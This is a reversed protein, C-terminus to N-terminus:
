HIIKMKQLIQMTIETVLNEKLLLLALLYVGFFICASVLLLVFTNWHVLGTWSISLLGAGIACLIKFYHIEKFLEISTEGLAVFQVLLVVIEAVLTGLAAGAAHMKPICIYNLVLDVVAGAIESYLVVKERGLPVLIQIGLINSLGIFCLTPMIIRMPLAADLYEKGSLLLIGEDAFFTFYVILPLSAIMVFNIAKSGIEHFKKQERHEIYYSARPLLVAGLSTVVSVLVTKIKVAATYLGVDHKSTMLGLMVNDLNTYVTTACAMAFFVFITKLHRQIDYGGKWSFSIYKHANILNLVNSASAAFITIAGYIVYDSKERILLLMAFLAIVKFFLSRKTIYSYQELGRYLWEMGITNFLMSTSIIILLIRDESFKPVFAITLFLCGYAIATMILNIIMIEHCTKTLEERDDRVKAVARIGYTPIGLQAIINFYSVVSTAFQVSGTGTTGLIRSVYPFSILPFIVSSLTLIVNMIFNKKLSTQRNTMKEAEKIDTVDNRPIHILM